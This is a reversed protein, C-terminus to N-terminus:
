QLLPLVLQAGSYVRSQESTNIPRAGPDELQKSHTWPGIFLEQDSCWFNRLSDDCCQAVIIRPLQSFADISMSTIFGPSSYTASMADISYRTLM